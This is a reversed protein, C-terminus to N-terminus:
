VMSKRHDTFLEAYKNKTYFAWAFSVHDKRAWPKTENIAQSVPSAGLNTLFVANRLEACLQDFKPLLGENMGVSAQGKKALEGRLGKKDFYKWNFCNTLHELLDGYYKLSRLQLENEKMAVSLLPFLSTLNHVSKTFNKKRLDTSTMEIIKLKMYKEVAQQALVGAPLSLGLLCLARAGLYDGDAFYLYNERSNPSSFDDLISNKKASNNEM